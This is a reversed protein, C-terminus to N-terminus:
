INKYSIYSFIFSACLLVYYYPQICLSQQISVPHWCCCGFQTNQKRVIKHKVRAYNLIVLLLLQINDWICFFRGFYTYLFGWICYTWPINFQRTYIWKFLLQKKDVVLKKFDPLDFSFFFSNTHDYTYLCIKFTMM